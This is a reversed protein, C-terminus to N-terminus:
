NDVIVLRDTAIISGDQTLRVVYLGAPLHDRQLAIKTGTIHDLKRVPQGNTNYLTLTANTLRQSTQITVHGNAPNPYMTLLQSPSLLQTIGSPLSSALKTIFVEYGKAITDANTFSSSGFTAQKGSYIGTVAVNGGADVAIANAMDGADASGGHLAWVANGSSDYKAVFADNFGNSTLNVTGYTGTGSFVGAVYCNGAADTCIGKGEDYLTTSQKAWIVNGTPDFKVLFMKYTTSPNTLTISGFKANAGQYSGTVFCNGNGDASIVPNYLSPFTGESKAWVVTGSSNLKAVLISNGSGNTSNMVTTTDIKISAGGFYGTLFCDGNAATCITPSRLVAGTAMKQWVMNGSSDYKMVATGDFFSGAVYVNGSDDVDATFLTVPAVTTVKGPCRAWIVNGNADYKAVVAAPNLGPSLTTSGLTLTGGGNYYGAVYSTGSADTRISTFKSDGTGGTAKRSWVLNGANDYKVLFMANSSPGSLTDSGFRIYNPYTHGVAYCNGAADMSISHGYDSGPGTGNKVWQWAPTQSFASGTILILTTIWFTIKTKM